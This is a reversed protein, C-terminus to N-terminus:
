DVMDKESIGCGVKKGFHLLTGSQEKQLGIGGQFCRL